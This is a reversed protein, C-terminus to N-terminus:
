VQWRSWSGHKVKQPSLLKKLYKAEAGCKECPENNTENMKHWKEQIKKCKTCEYEYIM